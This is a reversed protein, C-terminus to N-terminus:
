DLSIFVWKNKEKIIVKEATREGKFFFYLRGKEDNGQFNYQFDELQYDGYKGLIKKAEDTLIVKIGVKKMKKLYEQTFLRPFIEMDQTKLALVYDHGLQEQSSLEKSLKLCGSFLISILILLFLRM